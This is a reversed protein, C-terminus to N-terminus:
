KKGGKKINYVNLLMNVGRFLVIQHQICNAKSM